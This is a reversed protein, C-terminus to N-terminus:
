CLRIKYQDHDIKKDFVFRQKCKKPVTFDLTKYSVINKLIFFIRKFIEIRM